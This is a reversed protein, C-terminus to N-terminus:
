LQRLIVSTAILFCTWNTFTKTYLCWTHSHLYICHSEFLGSHASGIKWFINTL